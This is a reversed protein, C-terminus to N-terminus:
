AILYQKHKQVILGDRCLNKLQVIIEPEKKSLAICLQEVTQPKETLQWLIASRLQRTSGIFASQKVYHKSRSNSITKSKGLLSGYDVLAWYWEKINKNPLTENIKELIEADSVVEQAAFFFYIITKRINTEVFVVPLNFAYARVAGATNKGVGPLTILNEVADPVVGNFNHVIKQAAQKLFLARRNYGLGKWARLLASIEAQALADVSPFQQLFNHYYNVVREAQTQQLM